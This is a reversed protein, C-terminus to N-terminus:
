IFGRPHSECRGLQILPKRSAESSWLTVLRMRAASSRVSVVEHQLALLTRYEVFSM